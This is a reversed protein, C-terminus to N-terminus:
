HINDLFDQAQDDFAIARSKVTKEVSTRFLARRSRSLAARTLAFPLPKVGRTVGSGSALLQNKRSVPPVAGSFVDGDHSGLKRAPAPGLRLVNDVRERQRLQKRPQRLLFSAYAMSTMMLLQTILRDAFFSCTNL